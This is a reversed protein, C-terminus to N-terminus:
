ARVRDGAMLVWLMVRLVLPALVFGSVALVVVVAVVHGLTLNPVGFVTAVAAYLVGGVGTAAGVVLSRMTWRGEYLADPLLGVAYGTLAFVLASLGFPIPKALLLDLVFGVMLGVRAGRVPGAAAGACVALLLALDVSAGFPRVEALLTTQFMLTIALVAPLRIWPSETLIGNM